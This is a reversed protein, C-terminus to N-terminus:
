QPQTDFYKQVYQSITQNTLSRQYGSKKAADLIYYWRAAQLSSSTANPDVTKRYIDNFHGVFKNFLEHEEGTAIGTNKEWLDKFYSRIFRSEWTDITNYRHDGLSNLAYAGVKKNFIFIRPIKESQGTAHQVVERIAPLNGITKSKYGMEQNFKNLEAVPIEEQLFRIAGDVGMRKILKNIVQVAFAKTPASTGSISFPSDGMKRNGTEPNIFTTIGDLNGQKQFLKVGNISERTNVELPTQNSFLGNLVQFLRFEEDTVGKPLNESLLQKATEYDKSYYDSYSPNNKLWDSLESVAMEAAKRINSERGAGVTLKTQKLLKPWYKGFFEDESSTAIKSAQALDKAKEITKPMFDRAQNFVNSELARDNLIGYANNWINESANILKEQTTQKVEKARVFAQEPTLYEGDNTIFGFDRYDSEKVGAEAAQKEADWHVKGTFIKGGKTKLAAEKIARPENPKPMYDLHPPFYGNGTAYDFAGGSAHTYAGITEVQEPTDVILVPDIDITGKDDDRFVGLYHDQGSLQPFSKKARLMAANFEKQPADIPVSVTHQGEDKVTLAFPGVERGSTLKIDRGTAPNITGGGWPKRTNAYMQNLLDNWNKDLGETSQTNKRKEDLEAKGAAALKAYEEDNVERSNGRAEAKRIPPMYAYSRAQQIRSPGGARKFETNVARDLGMETALDNLRGMDRDSIEGSATYPEVNLQNDRTNVVARVLTDNVGTDRIAARVERHENLGTDYIHGTTPNVILSNPKGNEEWDKVSWADPVKPMFMGEKFSPNPVTYYRTLDKQQDPTLEDFPKSGEDRQWGLLMAINRRTLPRESAWQDKPKPMYYRLAEFSQSDLGNREFYKAHEPHLQGTEGGRTGAQKRNIFDANTDIFGDLLTSNNAPGRQGVEWSRYATAHDKGPWKTGDKLDLIAASVLPAPFKGGQTVKDNEHLKRWMEDNVPVGMRPMFERPWFGSGGEKPNWGPPPNGQKWEEGSTDEPPRESTDRLQQSLNPNLDYPIPGSPLSGMKIRQKIEDLNVGQKFGDALVEVETPTMGITDHITKLDYPLPKGSLSDALAHQLSYLGDEDKGFKQVFPTRNMFDEALRLTETREAEAIQIPLLKPMFDAGQKTYYEKIKARAEPKQEWYHKDEQVGLQKAVQKREEKGEGEVFTSDWLGSASTKPRLTENAWYAKDKAANPDPSIFGVTDPKRRDVVAYVNGHKEVFYPSVFDKDNMDRNRPMFQYTSTLGDDRKGKLPSTWLTVDSDDETERDRIIEDMNSKMAIDELKAMQSKPIKGAWEPYHVYMKRGLNTLRLYKNKFGDEYAEAMGGYHEEYGVIGADPNLIRHITDAHVDDIDNPIFEGKPDLWGYVQRPTDDQPQKGNYDKPEEGALEKNRRITVARKSPYNEEDPRKYRSQAQIFDYYRTAEEQAEIQKKTLRPMYDSDWRSPKIKVPNPNSWIVKSGDDTDRIIENMNSEEALSKLGSIQKSSLEGYESPYNIYMTDGVSTLRLYKNKWGEQYAGMMGGYINGYDGPHDPTPHEFDGKGQDFKPFHSSYKEVFEPNLLKAITDAHIDGGQNEIYEGEPNLWGYVDIPRGTARIKAIRDEKAKVRAVAEAKAAERREAETARALKNQRRTVALQSPMPDEGQERAKNQAHVLAYYREWAEQQAEQKSQGRRRPLYDAEPYNRKTWADRADLEARIEAQTMDGVAKVPKGQRELHETFTRIPRIGSTSAQAEPIEVGGLGAQEGEHPALLRALRRHTPEPKEGFVSSGADNGAYDPNDWLKETKGRDRDVMVRDAGTDRAQKILHEKMEPTIVFDKGVNAYLTKGSNLLRVYGAEWGKKYAFSMSDEHPHRKMMPDNSDIARRRWDYYSTDGNQLVGAITNAHINGRQNEIYKGEPSMWGYTRVFPKPKPVYKELEPRQKPPLLSRSRADDFFTTPEWWAPKKDRFNFDQEAAERNANQEQIKNYYHEWAESVAEEKTQGERPKPMFDINDAVDKFAADPSMGQQMNFEVARHFKAAQEDTWEHMPVDPPKAERPLQGDTMKALEGAKFLRAKMGLLDARTYPVEFGGWFKTKGQGMLGMFMRNVVDGGTEGGYFLELPTNNLVMRGIEADREKRSNFQTKGTAQLADQYQKEFREMHEPAAKGLMEGFLEPMRQTLHTYEHGGVGTPIDESNIHINGDGDIFGAGPESEDAQGGWAKMEDPPHIYVKRGGLKNTMGALSYVYQQQKASLGSIDGAVANNKVAFDKLEKAADNFRLQKMGSRTAFPASAAGLIGGISLGSAVADESAGTPANAGAFGAGMAAGQATHAALNGFTQVASDYVKQLDSRKLITDAKQSLDQVQQMKARVKQGAPSLDDEGHKFSGDSALDKVRRAETSPLDNLDAEIAEQLTGAKQKLADAVVQNKTVGLPKTAQQAAADTIESLDKGFAWKAIKNAIEPNKAGSRGGFGAIMGLLEDMGNGVGMKSLAADVTAAKALGVAAPAAKAAAWKAGGTVNGVANTLNRVGNAVGDATNMEAGPLLLAYALNEGIMAAATDHSVGTIRSIDNAGTNTYHTLVDGIARNQASKFKAYGQLPSPITEMAAQMPDFNLIGAALNAAVAPAKGAALVAGQGLEAAEKGLEPLDPKAFDVYDEAKNGWSLKPLYSAASSVVKKLAGVTDKGARLWGPTEGAVEEQNVAHVYDDYAKHVGKLMGADHDNVAPDGAMYQSLFNTADKAVTDHDVVASDLTAANPPPLPATTDVPTDGVQIDSLNATPM